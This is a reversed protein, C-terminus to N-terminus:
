IDEEDNDVISGGLEKVVNVAEAYMESAALEASAGSLIGEVDALADRMRSECEPIMSQTEGLVERQKKVDATDAGKSEMNVIKAEQAAAEKQYSAIEKRIRKLSGFKIRLQKAEDNQKSAM